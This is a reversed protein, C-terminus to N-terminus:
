SDQAPQEDPKSEQEVEGSQLKLWDNAEEFTDFTQVQDSEGIFEIHAKFKDDEKNISASSVQNAM